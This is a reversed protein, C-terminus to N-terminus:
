YNTRRRIMEITIEVITRWKSERVIGVISTAYFEIERRAGRDPRELSIPSSRSPADSIGLRSRRVYVRCRSFSRSPAFRRLTPSRSSGLLPASTAPAGGRRRVLSSSASIITDLNYYVFLLLWLPLSVGTCDRFFTYHARRPRWSRAAFSQEGWCAKMRMPVRYKKLIM